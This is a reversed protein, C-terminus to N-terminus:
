FRKAPFPTFPRKLCAGKVTAMTDEAEIIDGEGIHTYAVSGYVGTRRNVTTHWKNRLTLQGQINSTEDHDQLVIEEDNFTLDSIDKCDKTCWKKAILDVRTPQDFVKDPYRQGDSKPTIHQTLHCAIDFRNPDRGCASLALLTALWLGRRM